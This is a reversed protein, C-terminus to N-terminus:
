SKYFAEEAKKQNALIRQKYLKKATNYIEDKTLYDDEIKTHPVKNKLLSMTSLRMKSQYEFPQKKSIIKLKVKNEERIRMLESRYKDSDYNNIDHIIEKLIEADSKELDVALRRNVPNVKNARMLEENTMQRM